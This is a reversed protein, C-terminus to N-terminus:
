EGRQGTLLKVSWLLIADLGWLVLSLVLVVVAIMLTAQMTEKRTPWVVRRLEVRSGQMTLWSQKGFNTQYAIAVAAVAGLMLGGWRLLLNAQNEFYYFGYISAGVVVLALLLLATDLNSSRTEVTEASM